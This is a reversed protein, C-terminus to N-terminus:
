DNVAECKRIPVGDPNNRIVERSLDHRHDLLGVVFLRISRNQQEVEQTM